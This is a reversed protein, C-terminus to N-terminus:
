NGQYISPSLSAESINSILPVMHITAKHKTYPTFLKHIGHSHGTNLWTNLIIYKDLHSLRLLASVPAPHSPVLNPMVPLPTCADWVTTTANASIPQRPNKAYPKTPRPFNM